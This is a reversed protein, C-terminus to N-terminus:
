AVQEENMLLYQNSHRKKSNRFLAAAVLMGGALFGAIGSVVPLASVERHIETDASRSIGAASGIASLISSNAYRSLMDGSSVKAICSLGPPLLNVDKMAEMMNRPPPGQPMHQMTYMMVSQCDQQGNQSEQPSLAFRKDIAVQLDSCCASSITTEEPIQCTVGLKGQKAHLECATEGGGKVIEKCTLGDPLANIVQEAQAMDDGRPPGKPSHQMVYMALSGCAQQGASMEQPTLQGGALQKNIDNQTASCCESSITTSSPISCSAELVGLGATLTCDDAM